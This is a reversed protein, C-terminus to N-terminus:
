EYHGGEILHCIHDGCPSCDPLVKWEEVASEMRHVLTQMDTLKQQAEKLRIEILERAHPCLSQGQTADLLLQRIDDLTFGLARARLIFSLQRVEDHGFRHYGSADKEPKILGSRVYHRVTNVNVAFKKALESAKM